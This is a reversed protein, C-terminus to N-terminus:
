NENIDYREKKILQEYIELIVHKIHKCKKRLKNNFQVGCNCKYEVKELDTNFTFQICYEKNTTFSKIPYCFNTYKYKILLDNILYPEIDKFNMKYNKYLIIIRNLIIKM